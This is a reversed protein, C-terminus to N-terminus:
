HHHRISSCWYGPLTRHGPKNQSTAKEAPGIRKAITGVRVDGYYVHWCEDSAEFDRCAVTGKPGGNFGSGIQASAPAGQTM